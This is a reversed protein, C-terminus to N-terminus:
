STRRRVSPSKRNRVEYSLFQRTVPDITAVTIIVPDAFRVTWGPTASTPKAIVELTDHELDADIESYLPVILRTGAKLPLARMLLDVQNFAYVPTEFLQARTVPLSDGTQSTMTVRTGDYVLDIRRHPLVLHEHLPALTTADMTVSDDWGFAKAGQTGILVTRGHENAHREEQFGRYWEREASDPASRARVGYDVRHDAPITAKWRGPVAVPAVTDVAPRGCALTLVLSLPIIKRRPM